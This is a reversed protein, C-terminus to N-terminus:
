LAMNCKQRKRASELLAEQASRINADVIHKSLLVPPYAAKEWNAYVRADQEEHSIVFGGYCSYRRPMGLPDVESRKKWVELLAAYSANDEVRKRKCDRDQLPGSKPKIERTQEQCAGSLTTPKTRTRKRESKQVAGSLTTSKTRTRKRTPKTTVPPPLENVTPKADFDFLPLIPPPSQERSPGPSLEFEDFEYLNDGLFFLPPGTESCTPSQAYGWIGYGSM